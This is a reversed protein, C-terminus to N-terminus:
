MSSGLAESSYNGQAPPMSNEWPHHGRLGKPGQKTVSPAFGSVATTELGQDRGSFVQWVRRVLLM